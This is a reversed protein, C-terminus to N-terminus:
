FSINQLFNPMGHPAEPVMGMESPPQLKLYMLPDVSHPITTSINSLTEAVDCEPRSVSNVQQEELQREWAFVGYINLYIIPM